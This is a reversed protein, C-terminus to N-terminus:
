NLTNSQLTFIYKHNPIVYSQSYTVHIVCKNSWNHHHDLKEAELAIATM